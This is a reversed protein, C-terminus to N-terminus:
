LSPVNRKNKQPTKVLKMDKHNRINQMIKGFISNNLLKFFDKEFKNNEAMRVRTNLMIYPKMWYSQKFRNFHHIMKLGFSYKLAQNQSKIQVVYTNKVKLNLAQNEMKQIKM